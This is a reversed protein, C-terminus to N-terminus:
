SRFLRSYQEEHKLSAFDVGLTASGLDDTTSDKVSECLTQIRPLLSSLLLQGDRQGIVSLRIAASILNSIFANLFAPLATEVQIDHEAVALGFAIPYAIEASELSALKGNWGDMMARQFSNGQQVMELRRESSPALALALENLASLEKPKFAVRIAECLLIADQRGSGLMLIDDLWQQLSAANKVWGAEVAWELGHSYSFAGTPFSPSLWNQLKLHAESSVIM